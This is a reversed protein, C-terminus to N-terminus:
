GYMRAKREGSRANVYEIDNGNLRSYVRSSQEQRHGSSGYAKRVYNDFMNTVESFPAVVEPNGRPNPNDGIIATTLGFAAGGKALAPLPQSAILATQIAAMSGVVGALIPGIIPGAALASTVARDRICM